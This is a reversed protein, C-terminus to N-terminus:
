KMRRKIIKEIINVVEYMVFAIIALVFVGMMVLDMKFVQSGYVILFGIGARSVVFEGVIVGVWSMGINIKVISVINAFNSPIILKYLIQWKNANFSRMMKIKEDDVSTFYGYASIITIVISISIAVTTIGKIGTGAWIILIPALATKPLANLVVLFPDLIKALFDNLWLLIAIIIGLLTGIILGLLTEVVSIEIHKWLEGNKVYLVLIDFIRSPSSFLFSDIINFKSLLEWLLVLSILLFVQIINIRLKKKRREVIYPNKNM